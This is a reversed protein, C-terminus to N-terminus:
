WAYSSTGTAYTIGTGTFKANPQLRIPTFAAITVGSFETIGSASTLSASTAATVYAVQNIGTTNTCGTSTCTMTSNTAFSSFGNTASVSGSVIESAAVTLKATPTATGIGVNGATVGGATIGAIHIAVANPAANANASYMIEFDGNATQSGAIEWNRHITSGDLFYLAPNGFNTTALAGFSASGGNTLGGGGTMDTWSNTGAGKTLVQGTTGGPALQAPSLTGTIASASLNTSSSLNLVPPNTVVLTGATLQPTSINGTLQSAQLNTLGFANGSYYGAGILSVGNNFNALGNFVSIANYTNTGWTSFNNSVQLGGTVNLNNGALNILSMWGFLNTIVRDVATITFRGDNAVGLAQVAVQSELDPSLAYTAESATGTIGGSVTLNTFTANTAVVDARNTAPQYNAIDTLHSNTPQAGIQGPTIGTLASGPGIFPNTSTITSGYVNSPAFLNGLFHWDGDIENGGGGIVDMGGTVRLRGTITNTPATFVNENTAVAQQAQAITIGGGGGTQDIWKNTHSSTSLVQGDTGGPALQDSSVIGTPLANVVQSVQALTVMWAEGTLNTAGSTLDDNFSQEGSVAMTMDSTLSISLLSNTTFELITGGGHGDFEGVELWWKIQDAGVRDAKWRFNYFHPGGAYHVGNMDTETVVNGNLRFYLKPYYTSTGMESGRGELMVAQGNQALTGGPLQYSFFTYETDFNTLQVFATSQALVQVGGVQQSGNTAFVTWANTDGTWTGVGTPAPYSLGNSSMIGLGSWGPQTLSWYSANTKYIYPGTNTGGLYWYGLNTPYQTYVGNWSPVVTLGQMIVRNTDISGSLGQIGQPGTAGAPGPLGNVGNTGNLGNVGNTGSSGATGPFGNVGNTGNSGILGNVGNTGNVGNVGNTGNVGPVGQIGQPGQPGQPGAPGQGGNPLAHFLLNSNVLFFTIDSPALAGNDFVSLSRYPGYAGMALVPLLMLWYKIYQKMPNLTSYVHNDPEWQHFPDHADM